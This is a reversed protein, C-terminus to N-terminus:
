QDAAHVRSAEIQMTKPAQTLHSEPVCIQDIQAFSGQM